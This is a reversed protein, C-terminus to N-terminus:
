PANSDLRQFINKFSEQAMGPQSQQKLATENHTDGVVILGVMGIFYHPSCRFGYLGSKEFTVTLDRSMEGGFPEAGEPLMGPVSQANHGSDTAIFHVSDGPAIRVLDPVFGPGGAPTNNLMRVEVTKALTTAPALSLCVGLFLSIKM